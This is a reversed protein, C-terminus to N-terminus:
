GRLSARAYSAPTRGLLAKFDRNFHAQDCYGLAIALGALDEAEGAELRAMAEHLRYRQIVWKPSVGVCDSFLRQLARLGLGARAAVAEARMLSPDELILAVIARAEQAQPHPPPLRRLLFAEGLAIAAAVDDGCRLVSAELTAGEPGFAEGLPLVRDALGSVPGTWFPRFCGPHFKIGLVRGRGELLRVFRTSSPGGLGSRGEEIVLHVCPHPLTEVTKPAPLDWAVSWFHEVFADLPPEPLHRGAPAERQMAQQGVVGRPKWEVPTAM